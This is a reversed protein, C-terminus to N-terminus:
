VSFAPERSCKRFDCVAGVVMCALSGGCMLSCEPAASFGIVAGAGVLSLFVFFLRQCATQCCHGESIRALVASLLGIAQVILLACLLCPQSLMNMGSPNELEEGARTM